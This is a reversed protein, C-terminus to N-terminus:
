PLQDIDRSINEEYFILASFGLESSYFEMFLYVLLTFGTRACNDQCM